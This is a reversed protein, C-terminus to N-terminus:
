PGAQEALGVLGAVVFFLLLYGVLRHILFYRRLWGTIESHREREGLQIGPLLMDISYWIGPKEGHLSPKGKYRAILGGFLVLLVAWALARLEGAGYGYGITWRLAWLWWREPSWWPLQTRRRERGAILVDHAMADEGYAVLVRALQTYPQFSDSRDRALWAIYWSADRLKGIREGRPGYPTLREYRFDRLMM